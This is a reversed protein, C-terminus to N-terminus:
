AEAQKSILVPGNVMELVQELNSEDLELFTPPTTGLHYQASGELIRDWNDAKERRINSTRLSKIEYWEIGNPDVVISEVKIVNSKSGMTMLFCKGVCNRSM